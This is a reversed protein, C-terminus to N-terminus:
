GQESVGHIPIKELARAFKGALARDIRHVFSTGDPAMGRINGDFFYWSLLKLGVALRDSADAIRDEPRRPRPISIGRDALSKMFNVIRGLRLLTVTETRSTTHDLPLASARMLSFAPPLLSLKECRRYDPSDPAPYYVSVGALVRRRALFLLDDLSTEASQFPAGIIIYGVAEMGHTEALALARDFASRVDPRNFRRLQAASTSGLALNLWRFGARKMTRVIDDNLSPPFLGNMARLEIDMGQLRGPMKQLLSLFWTGDLALNEDEFDIFRAGYRVVDTEIESLVSDISRRLDPLFSTAGVSCYSCSMPCGRSASVVASGRRGRRYFRNKLLDTAPPPLRDLHKVIAPEAIRKRGTETEVCLGPIERTGTGDRVARTLM